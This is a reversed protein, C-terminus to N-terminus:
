RTHGSDYRRPGSPDDATASALESRLYTELEATFASVNQPPNFRRGLRVRCILPLAPRRFLPWHKGLYPTSYEILLTQVAAKSRRALLATSQQCAQLPFDRTRTGEPFILLRAGAALEEGADLFMALPPDNRIFRALRAAAGLLPNDMLATKMVCVTNPVRSLILVADLLSPHNAVLILPGDDHLRDLERLDFRCACFVGLFGLYGRFAVRVVTRGLWRGARHPLLRDAVMALPLWILCALAFTGLGLVMAVSEYTSWLSTARTDETM